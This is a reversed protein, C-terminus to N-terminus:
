MVELAALTELAYHTYELTPIGFRARAFGGNARQCDLILDIARQRERVPERLTTLGMVLRHVQELYLMDWIAERRGLWRVTTELEDKGSGLRALMQVAYYTSALTSLGNTGFGGDRNIFRYVFRLLADRDLEVGLDLLTTVARYTIDLESAVEVDVNRWSGFGGEPNAFDRLRSTWGRLEAKPLGLALGAEVLFFVGKPNALLGETASERLWGIVADRNGPQRGLVQLSKVAYYTDGAPSPPIRAFFYGGDEVQCSEIYGATRDLDIKVRTLTEVAVM